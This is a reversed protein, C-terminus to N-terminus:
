FMCAVYAANLLNKVGEAMTKSEAQAIDKFLNEKLLLKRYGLDSLRTWVDEMSVRGTDM